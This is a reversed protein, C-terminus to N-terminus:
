KESPLGIEALFQGLEVQQAALWKSFDAANMYVEEYMNRTMYDRWAASDYVQLFSASRNDDSLM